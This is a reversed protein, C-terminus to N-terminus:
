KLKWSLYALFLWGIEVFMDFILSPMKSRVNKIKKEFFTITNLPFFILIDIGFQNQPLIV